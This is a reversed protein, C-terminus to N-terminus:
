EAEAYSRLASVDPITLQRRELVILGDQQLRALARSVVERVSGVRAAIQQSTLPMSVSFGKGTQTGKTMAEELFLRALRQGVERLSLTAVLEACHRLRGAMVKLAALGILPHELCLRRVDQKSVFLVITDEEATVTSPYKGDDFVPVEAFTAPAREIHIIQERGDPGIRSARVAGDVVVYLGRAEDGAIFLIEGRSLRREVARASLANLETESLEGFLATRRLATIKDTVM